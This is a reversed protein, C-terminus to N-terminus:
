YNYQLFVNVRNDLGPQFGVYNTKWRLYDVGFQFGGGPTFRHAVYFTRNRSRGGAPLDRDVPDDTSFGPHLSFLRSLRINVEGWGGRGRIPRAMAVNLGQGISGRIDSLNRGWWGEGRFALFGALPVTFDVNVLQSRFDTLGAVPRGTNMFGYSGSIGVSAIREKSGLSHSYGIRGQVSPRSSEEGDRTGNADLDLSDIAGTLGIGGV